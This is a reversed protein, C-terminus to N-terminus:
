FDCALVHRGRAEDKVRSDIQWQASDRQNGAAETEFACWIGSLSGLYPKLDRGICCIEIKSDFRVM